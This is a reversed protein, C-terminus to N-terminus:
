LMIAVPSRLSRLLDHERSLQLWTRMGVSGLAGSYHPSGGADTAGAPPRVRPVPRLARGRQVGVRGGPMRRGRRPPTPRPPPSSLSAAGESKGPSGHSVIDDIILGSDRALNSQWHPSAGDHAKEDDFVVAVGGIVQHLCEALDTM